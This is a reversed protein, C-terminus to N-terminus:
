WKIAVTLGDKEELSAVKKKCLREVKNSLCDFGVIFAMFYQVDRM